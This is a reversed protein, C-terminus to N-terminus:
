GCAQGRSARTNRRPWPNRAIPAHDENEWHGVRLVGPFEDGMVKRALAVCRYAQARSYGFREQLEDVYYPSQHGPEATRFWLAMRFTREHGDKEIIDNM